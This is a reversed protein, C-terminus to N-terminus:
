ARELQLTFSWKNRIDNRNEFRPYGASFRYDGPPLCENEGIDWIKLTNEIAEGPDLKVKEKGDGHGLSSPRWCDPSERELPQETLLLTGPGSISREHGMPPKPNFVYDRRKESTNRVAIRLRATHETTIKPELIEVIVETEFRTPIDDARVLRVTREVSTPLPPPTTPTSDGSMRGGTCGTLATSLGILFVRRDMSYNRYGINVFFAGIALIGKQYIRM